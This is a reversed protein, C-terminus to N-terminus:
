LNSQMLTEMTPIHTAQTCLVWDAACTLSPAAVMTGPPWPEHVKPSILVLPHTQTDGDCGLMM